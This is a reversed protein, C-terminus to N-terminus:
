AFKWMPTALTPALASSEASMLLKMRDVLIATPTHAVTLRPNKEWWVHLGEVSGHNGTVM